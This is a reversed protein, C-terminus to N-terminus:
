GASSNRWKNVLYSYDQVNRHETRLVIINYWMAEPKDVGKKIKKANKESEVVIVFRHAHNMWKGANPVM